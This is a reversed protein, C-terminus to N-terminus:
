KFYVITAGNGGANAPAFEYKSVSRHNKLYETIGQRLAGTGKGHVITVQPYGALIASDLYADVQSLAEEYRQGRLDLSAPVHSRAGGTSSRIKTMPSPIEKEKAVPRLDSEVVNMKLIGVQVQWSGDKNKAILSGRQGYSEVIVEDGAQLKKAAKAKKLVRNTALHVQEQTHLNSLQNKADILEHEKVHSQGITKQKERLDSIIKESSEQAKDVIENAQKRAKELENEREQTFLQYMEKLEKLLKESQEL